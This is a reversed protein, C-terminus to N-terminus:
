AVTVFIPAENEVNEFPMNQFSYQSSAKLSERKEQDLKLKELRQLVYSLLGSGTVIGYSTFIAIFICISQNWTGGFYLLYLFGWFMFNHSCACPLAAGFCCIAFSNAILTPYRRQMIIGCYRGIDSLSAFIGGRFGCTANVGLLFSKAVINWMLWSEPVLSVNFAYAYSWGNELAGRGVSLPVAWNVAGTVMGGIICPVMERLIPSWELRKRMQGFLIKCLILNAFICLFVAACICGVVFATGFQGEEWTDNWKKSYIYATSFTNPIIYTEQSFTWYVMWGFFSSSSLVFVTKPYEIFMTPFYEMLMLPALIPSNFVSGLGGTVFSFVLLRKDSDSKLGVYKELDSAFYSVFGNGLGVSLDAIALVPALTSGGALSIATLCFTVVGWTPNGKRRIHPFHYSHVYHM